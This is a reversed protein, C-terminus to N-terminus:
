KWTEMLHWWSIKLTISLRLMDGIYLVKAALDVKFSHVSCSVANYLAEILLIVGLICVTLVNM